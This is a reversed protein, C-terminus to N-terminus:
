RGRIPDESIGMKMGNKVFVSREFHLGEEDLDVCIVGLEKTLVYFYRPFSLKMDVITLPPIEDPYVTFTKDLNTWEADDKWTYKYNGPVDEINYWPNFKDSIQM